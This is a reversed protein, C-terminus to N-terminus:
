PNANPTPRALLQRAAEAVAAPALDDVRATPSQLGACRPADPLRWAPDIGAAFLGLVPTDTTLALHMLGGDACIALRARAALAQAQRLSGRGVLDVATHGPPLRALLADAATRGNGSGVLLWHRLGQAALLQVLEPWRSYTRDAVVGGLALLVGDSGPAQAAAWHVADGDLALKQAAHRQLEAAPLQLGLLDALRQAAFRARHFDPGNYLGQLSVWPLTPLHQRKYRLSRRDDSLLVAADYPGAPPLQDSQVQRFYRDGAFLAALHPPAVLDVQCGHEALLSRPALDMLADGIQPMGEHIWVLRRWGPRLRDARWRLQGSALLQVQRRLSRVALRALGKRAAFGADAPVPTSLPQRCCAEALSRWGGRAAESM